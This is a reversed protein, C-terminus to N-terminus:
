YVESLEDKLFLWNFYNILTNVGENNLNGWTIENFVKDRVGSPDNEPLSLAIAKGQKEKALDTAICWAKLKEAYWDYPKLKSNSAPPNKYSSM